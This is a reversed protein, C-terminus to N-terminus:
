DKQVINIFQAFITFKELLVKLDIELFDIIKKLITIRYDGNGNSWKM